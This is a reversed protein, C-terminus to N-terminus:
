KGAVMVLQLYLLRRSAAGKSREESVIVMPRTQGETVVTIRIFDPLRIRHKALTRVADEAFSKRFDADIWSRALARGLIDPLFREVQERDNLFTQEAVLNFSPMVPAPRDTKAHDAKGLPSAGKSPLNARFPVLANRSGNSMVKSRMIVPHDIEFPANM